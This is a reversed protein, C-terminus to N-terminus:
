KTLKTSGIGRLKSRPEESQGPSSHHTDCKYFSPSLTVCTSLDPTPFSLSFYPRHRPLTANVTPLRCFLIREGDARNRCPPGLSHPFDRWLKDELIISM